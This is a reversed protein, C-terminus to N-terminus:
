KPSISRPARSKGLRDQCSRQHPRCRVPSRVGFAQKVGEFLYLVGGGERESKQPRGQPVKKKGQHTKREQRSSYRFAASRTRPSPFGELVIQETSFTRSWHVITQSINWLTARQSTINLSHSCNPLLPRPLWLTRNVMDLVPTAPSNQHHTWISPLTVPHKQTM